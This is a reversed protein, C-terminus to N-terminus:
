LDLYINEYLMKFLRSLTWCLISYPLVILHTVWTFVWIRSKNLIKNKNQM